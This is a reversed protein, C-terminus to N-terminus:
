KKLEYGIKLIYLCICYFIFILLIITALSFYINIDSLGIISYRFINVIYFIPNICTLIKLNQPLLDISYFIGSLYIMPTLVFTPIISIDDFKKACIGNILGILSFLIATFTYALLLFLINYIYLNCFFSAIIIIFIFIILSRIIGGFIFGIIIIFNYTPSILLEEINKQFKSSFFSSVVNSYANTIISMMILGPIIYEIYKYGYLPGIKKGMINGFILFYLLITVIPPLITQPWIRLIRTIEKNIITFFSVVNCKFINIM